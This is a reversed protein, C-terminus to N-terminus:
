LANKTLVVVIFICQMMHLSPKSTCQNWKQVQQTDRGRTMKGTKLGYKTEAVNPFSRNHLTMDQVITQWLHNKKKRVYIHIITYTCHTHTHWFHLYLHEQKQGQCAGWSPSPSLPPSLCVYPPLPLSLSLSLSLLLPTLQTEWTKEAGPITRSTHVSGCGEKWWQWASLQWHLMNPSRDTGQLGHNLKIWPTSWPSVHWKPNVWWIPEM